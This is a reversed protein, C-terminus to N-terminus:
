QRMIRPNTIIELPKNGLLPILPKHDVALTFKQIGLLFYKFKNVTWAAAM